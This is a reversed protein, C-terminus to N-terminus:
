SACISPPFNFIESYDATELGRRRRCSIIRSCLRHWSMKDEMAWSTGCWHVAYPYPPIRIPPDGHYGRLDGLEIETGPIPRCQWLLYEHYGAERVRLINPGGKVLPLRTLDDLIEAWSGHTYHTKDTSPAHVINVHDLALTQLTDYHTLLLRQLSSYEFRVNRIELVRLCPLHISTWDLLRHNFSSGISSIRLYQLCPLLQLLHPFEPGLTQDQVDTAVPAVNRGARKRYWPTETDVFMALYADTIPRERGNLFSDKTLDDEDLLLCSRSGTIHCVSSLEARRLGPCDCLLKGIAKSIRANIQFPLDEASKDNGIQRGNRDYRSLRLDPESEKEPCPSIARWTLRKICQRISVNKHLVALWEAIEQSAYSVRIEEFISAIVVSDFSRGVFRLSKISEWDCYSAIHLVLEPPLYSSRASHQVKLVGDAVSHSYM